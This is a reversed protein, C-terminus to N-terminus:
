RPGCLRLASMTVDIYFVSACQERQGIRECRHDVRHVVRECPLFEIAVPKGHRYGAPKLLRAKWAAAGLEALLALVRGIRNHEVDGLASSASLAFAVSSLVRVLDSVARRGLAAGDEVEDGDVACFM